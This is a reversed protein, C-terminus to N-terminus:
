KYVIKKAMDHYKWLSSYKRKIHDISVKLQAQAKIREIFYKDLAMRLKDANSHEHKIEEAKNSRDLKLGIEEEEYESEFEKLIDSLDDQLTLWEMAHTETLSLGKGKLTEHREFISQLKDINEM